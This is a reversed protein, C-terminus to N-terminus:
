MFSIFVFLPIVLTWTPGGLSALIWTTSVVAALTLGVKLRTSDVIFCLGYLAFSLISWRDDSVALFYWGGIAILIGSLRAALSRGSWALVMGGLVLWPLIAQSITEPSDLTPRYALAMSVLFAVVILGAWVGDSTSAPVTSAPSTDTNPDVSQNL